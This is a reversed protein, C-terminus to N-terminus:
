RTRREPIRREPVAIVALAACGLGAILLPALMWTVVGAFVATAALYLTGVIDALAIQPVTRVAARWGIEPEWEGAAILLAVAVVLLGAWGVVGIMQGGPLAGTGALLIDITLVTAILAVPVGV